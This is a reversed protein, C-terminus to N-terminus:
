GINVLSLVCCMWYNGHAFHMVFAAYIISRSDHVTICLMKIQSTAKDNEIDVSLITGLQM